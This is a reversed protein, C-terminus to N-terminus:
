LTEVIVVKTQKQKSNNSRLGELRMLVKMIYM